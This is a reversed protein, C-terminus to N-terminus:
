QPKALRGRAGLCANKFTFAVLSGRIRCIFNLSYSVLCHWVSVASDTPSVEPIYSHSRRWGTNTRAPFMEHHEFKPGIESLKLDDVRLNQDFHLCFIVFEFQMEYVYMVVVSDGNLNTGCSAFM